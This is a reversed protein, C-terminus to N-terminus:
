QKNEEDKRFILSITENDGTGRTVYPVWGEYTWGEQLFKEIIHEVDDFRYKPGKGLGFDAFYSKTHVFQIKKM